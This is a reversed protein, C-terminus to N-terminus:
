RPSRSPSYAALIRGAVPAADSGGTGHELFVVTVIQPDGAPAFGAFWAHGASTGTKGAIRLKTSAALRATGSDVAAELGRLVIRLEGRDDHDNKLRLALKRYAEALGLPTVAVSEEGISMLRSADATAPSGVKGPVESPWRGTPANLGARSFASPLSDMPLRQSLTIFFHNCSHALAAEADIPGLNRPHACDLNRGGARVTAPCMLATHETVLGADFLALLTFPKMTSGPTALRRAAVDMRYSALINGTEVDLVVAAGQRRAMADSVAQQLASGAGSFSPALTLLLALASLRLM